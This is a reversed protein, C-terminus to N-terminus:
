RRRRVGPLWRDRQRAGEKRRSLFALCAALLATGGAPSLALLMEEVPVGAIHGPPLGM